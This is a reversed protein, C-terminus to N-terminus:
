VHPYRLPSDTGDATEAPDAPKAPKIKEISHIIAESLIEIDM